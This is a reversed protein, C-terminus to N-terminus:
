AGSPEAKGAPEAEGSSSAAHEAAPGDGPRGEIETKPSAGDGEADASAACAARRCEAVRVVVTVLVSVAISLAVSAIVLGIVRGREDHRVWELAGAGREVVRKEGIWARGHDIVARGGGVWGALM